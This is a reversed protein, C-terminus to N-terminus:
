RSADLIKCEDVEGSLLHYKGAPFRTTTTGNAIKM